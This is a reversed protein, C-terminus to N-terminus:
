STVLDLIAAASWAQWRCGPKGYLSTFEKYGSDEIVYLEIPTKFHFIPKLMADRLRRKEKEFGWQSIGEHILGNLIPWFSGNHYSSATPNFTPSLSSMTRIGAEEHFLDSRFARAVLSPIHEDAVISERQGNYTYSAWLCLLPNATVTTIAAKHGDLAQIGYSGLPNKYIFQENFRIKLQTAYRALHTSIQPNETKYFDSWLRCALWAYAQAEIPAIPYYPFSGDPRKLADFSDTWSQVQLGGHRRASPLEYELFYDDDTDGLVTIWQLAREVHPLVTTLFNRDQSVTWYRHWAILTLATADVSDYNRLTGDEYIFWPKDRKILREYNDRRFEHIIKGAAEGSEINEQAGQLAALTLLTTKCLSLLTTDQTRQYVNLLKLTTLASDRGFICGYAETRSSANIGEDTALDLLCQYSLTQLFDYDM